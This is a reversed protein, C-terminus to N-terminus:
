SARAFLRRLVWHTPLYVCVPFFFMELVVFTIITVAM